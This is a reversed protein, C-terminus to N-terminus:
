KASELLHDLILDTKRELRVWDARNSELDSVREILNEVLERLESIIEDQMQENTMTM